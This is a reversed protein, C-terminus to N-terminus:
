RRWRRRAKVRATMMPEFLVILAGVGCVIRPFVYSNEDQDSPPNAVCLM